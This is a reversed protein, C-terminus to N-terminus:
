EIERLGGASCGKEIRKTRKRRRKKSQSGGCIQRMRCREAAVDEKM